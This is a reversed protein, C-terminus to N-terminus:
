SVVNSSLFGMMENNDLAKYIDILVILRNELKIIGKLYNNENGAEQGLSIAEEIDDIPISLTNPVEKVLVGLKFEESEIVLTYNLSDNIEKTSMEEDYFKEELDVVAIINGRINAVGKIYSPTQPLKTINPTMVVEKVQDILLGYEEGGLKFVIIQARNFDKESQKSGAEQTSHQNALEM